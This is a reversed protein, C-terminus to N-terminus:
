GLFSAPPRQFSLTIMLQCGALFHLGGNNLSSSKVWLIFSSPFLNEGWLMWTLCCGLWCGSDVKHIGQPSFKAMSPEQGLSSHAPLHTNLQYTQPLKNCFLPFSTCCNLVFKSFYIWWTNMGEICNMLIWELKNNEVNIHVKIHMKTTMSRSIM